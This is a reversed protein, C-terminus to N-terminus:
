KQKIIKDSVIILYGEIGNFPAYNPLHVNEVRVRLTDDSSALVAKQLIVTMTTKDLFTIKVESKDSKDGEHFALMSGGPGISITTTYQMNAGHVSTFTLDNGKSDTEFPISISDTSANFIYIPTEAANLVKASLLLLAGAVLFSSRFSM